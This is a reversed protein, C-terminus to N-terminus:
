RIAPIATFYSLYCVPILKQPFSHVDYSKANATKSSPLHYDSMSISFRVSLGSARFGVDFCVQLRHDSKEAAGESQRDKKGNSIQPSNKQINKSCGCSITLRFIHKEQSQMLILENTLAITLINRSM